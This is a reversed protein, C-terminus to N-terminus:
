GCGSSCPHAPSRSTAAHGATSSRRWRASQQGAHIGSGAAAPPLRRPLRRRGGEHRHLHGRLARAAGDRRTRRAGRAPVVANTGVCIAGTTGTAPACASETSSSRSHPQAASWGTTTPCASTSRRRSSRRAFPRRLVAGDADLFDPRVAFDADLVLILASSTREYGYSLNGAKKMWGRDPRTSTSSAGSRQAPGSTTPPRMTSCTSRVAARHRLQTAHMITNEVVDADEGCTMIFVDVSADWTIPRRVREDHVAHVFPQIQTSWVLSILGSLVMMLAFPLLVQLWDGRLGLFVLAVGLCIKSLASVPMFWEGGRQVYSWVESDSPPAIPLRRRAAALASSDTVTGAPTTLTVPATALEPPHLAVADPAHNM